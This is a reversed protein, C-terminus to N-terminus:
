CAPRSSRESTRHRVRTACTASSTRRASTRRPSARTSSRRAPRRSVTPPSSRVTAASTVGVEVGSVALAGTTTVSVFSNRLTLGGLSSIGASPSGDTIVTLADATLTADARAHQVAPILAGSREIRLRRLTVNERTEVTPNAGGGAFRLTPPPAGDQGRLTVARNILIGFPGLDADAYTGPAVIIEDGDQLGSAAPTTVHDLQCATAPTLCSGSAPAGPAAFRQAASADAALLLLIAGSSALAPGIGSILRPM